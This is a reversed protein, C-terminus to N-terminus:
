KSFKVLKGQEFFLGFKQKQRHHRYPNSLWVEEGHYEGDLFEVQRRTYKTGCIHEVITLTENDLHKEFYDRGDVCKCKRISNKYKRMKTNLWKALLIIEHLSITDSVTLIERPQDIQCSSYDRDLGVGYFQKLDCGYGVLSYKHSAFFFGYAPEVM